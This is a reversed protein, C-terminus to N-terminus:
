DLLDAFEAMDPNYYTNLLIKLDRHGSVKALTMVDLKGAMWTLAYHRSDHFNLGDINARNCYRRFLVDMSAGIDFIKGAVGEKKVSGLLRRANQSLPVIRATETKYGYVKITKLDVDDWTANLLEKTRMGTECAFLFCAGVWQSKTVPMHYPEYGMVHFLRQMEVETPLRDRPPPDKPRQALRMPNSRMWGWKDVCHRIINNITNWERNVSSSKVSQLRRDRWQEFHEARLEHMAVYCVPDKMFAELRYAEGKATKKKVTVEDIYRKVALSFPESSFGYGNDDILQELQSAWAVAERRTAFQRSQSKGQRRIFARYKGSAQKQISAM